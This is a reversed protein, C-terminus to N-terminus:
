LSEPSEGVLESLTTVTRWNRFTTPTGLIGEARAALKSRGFGGPAHFYFRTGLIRYREGDAAIAALAPGADPAPISALFGVHLSRPDEEAEPFPNAELTAAIDKAGLVIVGPPTGLRVGLAEAISRAMATKDVGESRFVVNGSNLYTKADRFGLRGLEAVLIGM